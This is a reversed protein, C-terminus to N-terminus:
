SMPFIHKNRDYWQWEVVKGLHSKDKKIHVYVAGICVNNYIYFNFLPGLIGWACMAIIDYFLIDQPIILDEKVIRQKICKDDGLKLCHKVMDGKCCEWHSTIELMEMKIRHQKDLWEMTMNNANRISSPCISRKM